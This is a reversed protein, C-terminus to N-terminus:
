FITIIRQRYPVLAVYGVVRRRRRWMAYPDIYSQWRESDSLARKYITVQGLSGLWPSTGDHFSGIRLNYSPNDDITGTAAMSTEFKGDWYSAWTSGNYIGTLNHWEGSNWTLGTTALWRQSGGTFIVLTFDDIAPSFVFRPRQNKELIYVETGYTQDFDPRLWVSFTCASQGALPNSPEWGPILISDNDGDFGITYIANGWADVDTVWATALDMNALTGHRGLGSCDRLTSGTPGLFPLWAGVVGEWLEPAESEAAYRAFGQRYTPIILNSM